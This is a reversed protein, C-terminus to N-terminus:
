RFVFGTDAWAEGAVQRELDVIERHRRLEAVLGTDIKVARRGAATKPTSATAKSDVAVRTEIM